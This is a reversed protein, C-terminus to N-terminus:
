VCALSEGHCQYLKNLELIDLDSMETNGLPMAPDFKARMTDKGNRTFTTKTYHMISKYDYPTDQTISQQYTMRKFNDLHGAFINVSNLLKPQKTRSM